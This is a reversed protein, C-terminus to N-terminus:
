EFCKFIDFRINNLCLYKYIRRLSYELNNKRSKYELTNVKQTYISNNSRLVVRGQYEIVKQITNLVASTYKEEDYIGYVSNKKFTTLM